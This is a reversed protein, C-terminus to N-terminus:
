YVFFSGAQHLPKVKKSLATDRQAHFREATLSFKKVSFILLVGKKVSNSLGGELSRM